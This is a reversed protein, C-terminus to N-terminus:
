EFRFWLKKNFIFGIHILTRLTFNQKGTEMRAIVSQTTHLKAAVAQQTMRANHRLKKIQMGLILKDYSEVAFPTKLRRALIHEDAFEPLKEM